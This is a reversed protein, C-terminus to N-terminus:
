NKRWVQYLGPDEDKSDPCFEETVVFGTKRALHHLEEPTFHHIYYSGTRGARWNVLLDGPEVLDASLNVTEWPLLSEEVEPMRELQWNSLFLRGDPTLLERIQDLLNKRLQAGPLHHLVSFAVVGEYAGPTLGEAWASSSLDALKFDAEFGPLAKFWAAREGAAEIFSPSYDLGLYQGAFGGRALEGALNGFGCGLDLVQGMPILSTLLRYVGSPVRNKHFHSEVASSHFFQRDIELLHETIEKKMVQLQEM